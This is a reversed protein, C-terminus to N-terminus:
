NEDEVLTHTEMTRGCRPCKASGAPIIYRTTDSPNATVRDLVREFPREAFPSCVQCGFVAGVAKTLTTSDVVLFTLDESRVVPLADKSEIPAGIISAVEETIRRASTRKEFLMRYMGGITSVPSWQNDHVVRRPRHVIAHFRRGALENVEVTCFEGPPCSCQRNLDGHKKRLFESVKQGYISIMNLQLRVM